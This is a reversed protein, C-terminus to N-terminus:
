GRQAQLILELLPLDDMYTLKMNMRSAPVIYVLRNMIEFASAEDTIALQHKKVYDLVVELEALRFAQPTLACWLHERSVTCEILEDKARKLTDVVPTALILGQVTRSDAQEICTLLRELDDNPLCPRAADHILVWDDDLAGRNRIAQVGSLVSQWREDGGLALHIKQEYQVMLNPLLSELYRDDRAHVLTLDVMRHSKLALVSHELVTKDLLKTYQKPVDAGFRTGKGAAVMLAFIKPNSM